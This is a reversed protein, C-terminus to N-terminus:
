RGSAAPVLPRAYGEIGLWAAHAADVLRWLDSDFPHQEAAAELASLTDRASRCARWLVQLSTPWEACLAQDALPPYPACWRHAAPGNVPAPVGANGRLQIPPAPDLVSM